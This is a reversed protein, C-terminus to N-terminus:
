SACSYEAEQYEAKLLDFPPTDERRIMMLEVFDELSLDKVLEYFEPRNAHLGALFNRQYIYDLPLFGANRARVRDIEEPALV